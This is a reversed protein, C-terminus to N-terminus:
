VIDQVRYRGRFYAMMQANAAPPKLAGRVLAPPSLHDSYAPSANSAHTSTGVSGAPESKRPSMAFTKRVTNTASSQGNRNAIAWIKGCSRLYSYPLQLGRLM